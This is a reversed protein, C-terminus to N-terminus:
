LFVDARKPRTIRLPVIRMQPGGVKFGQSEYVCDDFL